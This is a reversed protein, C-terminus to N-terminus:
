KMSKSRERNIFWLTLPNGCFGCYLCEQRQTCIHNTSSDTWMIKPHVKDRVWPWKNEHLFNVSSYNDTTMLRRKRVWHLCCLFDFIYLSKSDPSIFWHTFHSYRLQFGLVWTLVICSSVCSQLGDNQLSYPLCLCFVGPFSVSWGVQYAYCCVLSM